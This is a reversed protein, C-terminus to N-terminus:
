EFNGVKLMSPYDGFKDGFTIPFRSYSQVISQNYNCANQACYSLTSDISVFEWKMTFFRDFSNRNHLHTTQIPFPPPPRLPRAEIIESQTCSLRNLVDIEILTMDTKITFEIKVSELRYRIVRYRYCSSSSSQLQHVVPFSEILNWKWKPNISISNSDSYYFLCHYNDTLSHTRSHSHTHTKKENAYEMACWKILINFQM